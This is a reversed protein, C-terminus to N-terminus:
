VLLLQFCIAKVARLPASTTKPKRTRAPRSQSTLACCMGLVARGVVECINRARVWV